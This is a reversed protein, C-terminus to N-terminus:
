HGRAFAIGKAFLRCPYDQQHLKMALEADVLSHLANEEGDAGTLKVALVSFGSVRANILQDILHQGSRAGYWPGLGDLPQDLYVARDLPEGGGLAPTEAVV